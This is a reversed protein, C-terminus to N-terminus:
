QGTYGVPPTVQGAIVPANKSVVYIPSETLTLHVVGNVYGVTYPNGMMDLVTVTGNTGPNDVKLSYNIGANPSYAGAATPWNANNHTWLATIVAGGGLQQFAYGYATKPLGNLHGFTRTGDIIRTMAAFAMAEPKPSVNRATHSGQPDVVDFFTGYGVEEPFDAGYFFYTVQAGEGLVILHTRVAVAAQAYLQNASPSYPGYTTGPDYSIGVESSWLRMNPKMAQMQSRLARMQQDLARSAKSPDPDADLQEPPQSPSPKDSYYSHTVVGDIYQALGLPAHAALLGSTCWSCAGPDPSTTGMVIAHPDTSHLGNYAARYLSVFNPASDKWDPEWTVQYYDHQQNPYYAGRIAATDAGVRAMFNQYYGLNTPLRTDDQYAGTPSAWAPIGDVRVLRMIAGSKFFPDVNNLSPTWTYPGNPEMTSLQRSDIIQSIGLDTLIKTWGYFGQMGFRHQDQSTYSVAPIVASLNPLIGFTAIGSPRTGAQPLTGGARALTATVAFYGSVSATCSLTSTRVGGAVPFAGRGKINGRDDQISWSVYDASGTATVFALSFPSGEAFLRAHYRTSAPDTSPTDASIPGNPTGGTTTTPVSCTIAGTQPASWYGTSSDYWCRKGYGYAPDTRSVVGNTCPVGNTFPGNVSQMPRPSTTGFVVKATGGFGCYGYESACQTYPVGGVDLTAQANANRVGLSVVALLVTCLCNLLLCLRASVAPRSYVM